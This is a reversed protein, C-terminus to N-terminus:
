PASHIGFEGRRGRGEGTIEAREGAAPPDGRVFSAGVAMAAAGVLGLGVAVRQRARRM